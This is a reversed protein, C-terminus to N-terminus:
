FPGLCCAGLRVDEQPRLIMHMAKAVADAEAADTAAAVNASIEQAPRTSGANCGALGGYTVHRPPDAAAESVDEQARRDAEARALENLKAWVANSIGSTADTPAPRSTMQERKGAGPMIKALATAVDVQPYVHMLSEKLEFPTQVFMQLPNCWRHQSAQDRRGGPNEGSRTLM